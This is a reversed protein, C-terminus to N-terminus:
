MELKMLKGVTSNWDAKCTPTKAECDKLWAPLVVTKVISRLTEQDAPTVEAVTMKGLRNTSCPQKGTNCNLGDQHTKTAMAWFGAELKTFQDSLAAQQAASLSQWVKERIAHIAIGNGGFALPYVTRAVDHWDNAAAYAAGTIACDVVGQMMAQYVEPGALSVSSAGLHEVAASAFASQTRVKKGKLATLSAIEDRCYLIQPPYSWVAMLRAGYNDQLHKDLVPKYAESIKEVDAQTEATGPLDTAVLVPDDGSVFAVQISVIDFAGSRLTRLAEFGKLNLEDLTNFRAALKGGTAKDLDAWFPRELIQQQPQNGNWGLVSITREASLAASPCSACVVAVLLGARSLAQATKAAKAKTPLAPNASISAFM